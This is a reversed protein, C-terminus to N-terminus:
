GNRLLDSHRHRFRCHRQYCDGNVADSRCRHSRKQDGRPLDALHCVSRRSLSCRCLSFGWFVVWQSLFSSGLVIVTVAALAAGSSVGVLGPDALPNRFLGQMAAGSVALGAGVLIGLLLRPLRIENVVLDTQMAVDAGFLASLVQATDISIAGVSLSYLSVLLTILALISLALLPSHTLRM